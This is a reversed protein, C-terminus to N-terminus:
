FRRPGPFPVVSGTEGAPHLGARDGAPPQDRGPKPGHPLEVINFTPDTSHLAPTTFSLIDDIIMLVSNRGFEAASTMVDSAASVIEPKLSKTGDTLRRLTNDRIADIEALAARANEYVQIAEQDPWCRGYAIIM